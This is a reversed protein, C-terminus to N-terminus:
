DEHIDIMTTNASKRLSISMGAMTCAIGPWLMDANISCSGAYAFSNVSAFGSPRSPRGSSSRPTSAHSALSAPANQVPLSHTKRLGISARNSYSMLSFAGPQVADNDAAAVGCPSLSLPTSVLAPPHRNLEGNSLRGGWPRCFM